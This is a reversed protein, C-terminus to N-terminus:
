TEMIQLKKIGIFLKKSDKKIGIGNDYFYGTYIQAFTFGQYAVRQLYEFALIESRITGNGHFYCDGVYSQALLHNNKSANIYLNFAKVENKSTGIGKNNFYGFLFIANLSKQNNLLWNYIEQSNTNHNNLYRIVQEKLLKQKIGKNLLTFIFNNLEDVITNFDKRPLDPLAKEQKNSRAITDIDRTSMKDVNRVITNFDKKSIGPFAKKQNNSEAINDIDNTNMKDFNQILQSLDEQFGSDNVSLYPEQKSSLQPNETIIDTKTIM